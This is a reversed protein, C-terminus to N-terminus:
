QLVMLLVVNLIRSVAQLVHGPLVAVGEGASHEQSVADPPPPAPLVLLPWLLCVDHAYAGLVLDRGLFRHPGHLAGVKCVVSSEVLPSRRGQHSEWSCSWVSAGEGQENEQM